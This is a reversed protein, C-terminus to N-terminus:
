KNEFVWYKQLLFILVATVIILAGMILQHPFKYIDVFIILSVLQFIYGVMYAAVYRPLTSKMLGQHEFTWKKNFIFTQMIGLTYLLTMAIKHEMGLWTFMLYLCFLIGNSLLGVIGYKVFQVQIKM